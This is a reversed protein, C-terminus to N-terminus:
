PLEGEIAQDRSPLSTIKKTRAHKPIKRVECLRKISKVAAEFGEGTTDPRFLVECQKYFIKNISYYMCLYIFSGFIPSMKDHWTDKIYWRRQKPDVRWMQYRATKKVLVDM